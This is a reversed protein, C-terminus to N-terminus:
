CFRCINTRSHVKEWQPGHAPLRDPHTHYVVGERTLTLPKERQCAAVRVRPPREAAVECDHAVICGEFLMATHRDAVVEVLQVFTRCFEPGHAYGFTDALGHAVEHLIVGVSRSWRPMWINGISGGARRRRRGDHVTIGTQTWRARFEPRRVLDDVYKQIDPVAEIRQTLASAQPWKTFRREANYLRQRQIDAM